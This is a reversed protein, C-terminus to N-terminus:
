SHLHASWGVEGDVCLSSALGLRLHMECCCTWSFRNTVKLDDIVVIVGVSDLVRSKLLYLLGRNSLICLNNM